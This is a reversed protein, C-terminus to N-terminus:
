ILYILHENLVQHLYLGGNRIDIKTTNNAGYVSSSRSADFGCGCDGVGTNGRLEAGGGASYFAGTATYIPRGFDM